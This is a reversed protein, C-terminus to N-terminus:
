ILGVAILDREDIIGIPRHKKDLVPLNDCNYKKMMESAESALQEPYIFKPNKTMVDSLKRELLKPDEQLKRRLDGDTFYGVLKGSDDIVSTAGIKTKTMVKLAEKVTKKQNIVPNNKGTHMLEQVKLLLKKGLMGGPHYKAFDEKRFGRKEGVSLALADGISLMATTSATPVLNYPCAEKKVSVNIVCDSFKALFSNKRGTMAIIKSGINKLHPLIKKLEESEGSFSLVIILDNYTILGMDGHALEVSHVFVSPIGLSAFTASIKRGILGSKGIGTVIIRGAQSTTSNILEVAKVFNEDIHKIQQKVADSEIKLTKKACELIKNKMKEFRKRTEVV